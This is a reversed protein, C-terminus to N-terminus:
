FTVYNSELAVIAYNKFFIWKKLGHNQFLEILFRDSHKAVGRFKYQEFNGRPRPLKFDSQIKANSYVYFLWCFSTITVIISLLALKM